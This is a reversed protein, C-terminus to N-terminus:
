QQARRERVLEPTVRGAKGGFHGIVYNSVAALEADNYARAFSPMYATGHSTKLDGGSLLVRVLNVGEPDNVAQSGALAAYNTERGGGNWAHCSACVGEFLRRGLENGADTEGPAWSSSVTMVGPAPDVETGPVGTQPEVHRLYSVLSRTDDATLYQLSYGVAEGMPGSASGRGAAHGFSLYDAIQQDSWDGIGYDKDTTINYAHWGQAVAGGFQRGIEMAFGLNRPTHCEGCHGLATALYAGRNEATNLAPDPRFRHEDLFALNWFALTWRQNFPFALRNPRAPAHVPPLSFLYAKMAVADERSLGTYSAYPFAPYLHSGDKAIGQHLARVFDDDSWTGIGTEKDATINTSYITGFPLTFAFGGTFPKGGPINHCAACDAARVLYAGRAILEPTAPVDAASVEPDRDYLRWGVFGAGVVAVVVVAAALFKVLRRM